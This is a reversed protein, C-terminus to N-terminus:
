PSCVTEFRTWRACQFLRTPNEFGSPRFLSIERVDLPTCAFRRVLRNRHRTVAAAAPRRTPWRRTPQSKPRGNTKWAFLRSFDFRRRVANPRLSTIKKCGDSPRTWGGGGSYTPCDGEGGAVEEPIELAAAACVRTTRTGRRLTHACWANRERLRLVRALAYPTNDPRNSNWLCWKAM